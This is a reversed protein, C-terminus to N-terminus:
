SRMSPYLAPSRAVTHGGIFTVWFGTFTVWFGTFAVWLGRCDLRRRTLAPCRPVPVTHCGAFVVVGGFCYQFLLVSVISFCTVWLGSGYRRYLKAFWEQVISESKVM